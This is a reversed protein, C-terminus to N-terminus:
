FRAGGGEFRSLASRLEAMRGPPDCLLRARDRCGSRLRLYESEDELVIKLAHTLASVDGPPLLLGCTEDVIELAGGTGSTLVPLGARLAEVFSIGFWEGRLNPQCYLDGCALLHPVDTRNGLLYVRDELGHRGIRKGLQRYHRKERASQPGGIIWCAWPTNTDLAALADVLVGQGKLAQRKYM